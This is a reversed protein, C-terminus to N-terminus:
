AAAPVPVQFTYSGELVVEHTRGGFAKPLTISLRKQNPAFRWSVPRGACLAARIETGSRSGAM